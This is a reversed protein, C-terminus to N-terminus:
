QNATYFYIRNELSQEGKVYNPKTRARQKFTNFVLQKYTKITLQFDSKELSLSLFELNM